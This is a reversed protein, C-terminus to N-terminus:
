TYVEPRAGEWLPAADRDAAAIGAALDLDAVLLHEEPVPGQGATVRPAEAVIRGDPAIVRSAGLLGSPGAGGCQNAMIWWQGNALAQAPYLLDWWREAGTEYASVSVVVRAGRSRLARAYGPHDGDFCIGLGVPGWPTGIVTATGGAAFVAAEGTTPYLHAKRHAAVREGDPAYVPATNYLTGGAREPVSGAFLWLGHERALDRLLRDRPGDLPEAATEADAALTRAGYGSPWLEPLVVLDAGQASLAAVLRGATAENAAPRGPEPRWQAIGIRTTRCASM